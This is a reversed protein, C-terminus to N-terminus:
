TGSSHRFDFHGSHLVGIQSSSGAPSLHTVSQADHKSTSSTCSLESRASANKRATLPLLRLNAHLWPGRQQLHHRLQAICHAIPVCEGVEREFEGFWLQQLQHDGLKGFGHVAQVEAERRQM